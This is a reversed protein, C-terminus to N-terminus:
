VKHYEGCDECWRYRPDAKRPDNTGLEKYTSPEKTAFSEVLDKSEKLGLRFMERVHKIFSIKQEKGNEMFYGSKKVMQVYEVITRFDADSFSKLTRQSEPFDMDSELKICLAEARFYLRIKILDEPSIGSDLLTNINIM